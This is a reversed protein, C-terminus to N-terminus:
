SRAQRSCRIRFCCAQLCTLIEHILVHVQDIWAKLSAPIAFNYVAVSVVIIDADIIEALLKDSEEFVAKQEVTLQNAPAYRSQVFLQALKSESDM